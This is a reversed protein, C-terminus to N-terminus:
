KPIITDWLIITEDLNKQAFSGPLIKPFNDDNEAEYWGSASRPSSCCGLHLEKHYTLPKKGNVIIVFHKMKSTAATRSGGRGVTEQEASRNNLTKCLGFVFRLLVM